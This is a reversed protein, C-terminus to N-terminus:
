REPQPRDPASRKGPLGASKDTWTNGSNISLKINGGNFDDMWGYNSRIFTRYASLSITPIVAMPIPLFRRFRYVLDLRRKDNELPAAKRCFRFPQQRAAYCIANGLGFTGERIGPLM